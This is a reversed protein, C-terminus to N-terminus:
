KLIILLQRLVRGKDKGYEENALFYERILQHFDKKKSESLLKTTLSKRTIKLKECISFLEVTCPHISPNKSPLVNVKVIPKSDVKIGEDLKVKVSTHAEVIFDSEWPKFYTDEVIVELALKGTSNEELLGKVKKIPVICKGDNIKGYFVLNPGDNSEVILRAISGKLSANKVSVECIFNENKDTFIKYIM